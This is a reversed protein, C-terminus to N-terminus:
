LARITGAANQDLFWEVPCRATVRSAPPAPIVAGTTDLVRTLVERKDAGAALFIAHHSTAILPFTFTVRDRVPSTDPAHAAVVWRAREDLAPEGPFLSATHGDTGMGLLTLDIPSTPDFDRLAREYTMACEAPDLHTQAAHINSATIPVHNLLAERAARTNSDKHDHPVLREDGWWVHTRSWDISTRFHKALARYLGAPTSGGSLALSFRGRESISERAIAAVRNAAAAFLSETTPFVRVIPHLSTMTM